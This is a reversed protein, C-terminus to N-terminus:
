SKLQKRGGAAKAKRLRLYLYSGFLLLLSAIHLSRKAAPSVRIDSLGPSQAHHGGGERPAPTQVNEIAARQRDGGGADRPNLAGGVQIGMAHVFLLAYLVYSWKQLKKWRVGGLRRHVADFSTVWLPIFLALLVIGLVLSFNSIGAGLEGAVRATQMYESHRTFYTLPETFNNSVRILSHALIPFGSLISLEKRISMLRKVWQRRPNLAGMYMILVLLPFGLTGAHVYDRIIGGMLPISGFNFTAVGIWRGVAPIAVMLFPLSLVIYYITSHKKISKSLLIALLTLITVSTVLPLTAYLFQVLDLLLKIM